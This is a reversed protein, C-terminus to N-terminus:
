QRLGWDGTWEPPNAAPISIGVAPEGQGQCTLCYYKYYGIGQVVPAVKSPWPWIGNYLMTNGCRICCIKLADPSDINISM